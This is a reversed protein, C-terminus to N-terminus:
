EFQNQVEVLKHIPKIYAFWYSLLGVWTATFVISNNCFINPLIMGFVSSVFVITASTNWM